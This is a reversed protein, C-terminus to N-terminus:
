SKKWHNRVFISFILVDIYRQSIEKHFAYHEHNWIKPARFVFIHTTNVNFVFDFWM